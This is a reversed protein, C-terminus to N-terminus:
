DGTRARSRAFAAVARFEGVQMRRGGSCCAVTAQAIDPVAGDVDVELMERFEDAITAGFIFPDDSGVVVRLGARTWTWMPHSSLHGLGALRVNSAPCAELITDNERVLGLVYERASPATASDFANLEPTLADPVPAKVDAHAFAAGAGWALAAVAQEIPDGVRAHDELVEVSAVDLYGGADYLIRHALLADVRFLSSYADIWAQPDLALGGQGMALKYLLERATEEHGVGAAVSWALDCIADGVRIPPGVDGSCVAAVASESLGLAHGIRQPPRDALFLEGVRRAGNLPSCFSEGAHIAYTLAVDSRRLLEAGAAFPWSASGYEDGAVDITSIASALMGNDNALMERIANYGAIVDHLQELDTWEGSPQQCPRRKFGVPMSLAMARGSDEVFAAFGTHHAALARLVKRKFVKRDSASITKRFEAGVVDSSAAIRELTARAIRAKLDNLTADRALGMEDFRDVFRSLGDGPRASVVASVAACARVIGMMFVRRGLFDYLDNRATRWFVEHVDCLGNFAFPRSVGRVLDGSGDPSTTAETKVRRWFIGDTVLSVVEYDFGSETLRKIDAIDHGDRLYRLFRLAWRLTALLTYLDWERGGTTRFTKDALAKRAVPARGSALGSFFLPLPVSAGSHLHADAIDFGVTTAAPAVDSFASTPFRDSWRSMGPPMAERSSRYLLELPDGGCLQIEREVEFRLTPRGVDSFRGALLDILAWGEFQSFLEEKSDRLVTVGDIAELDGFTLALLATAVRGTM